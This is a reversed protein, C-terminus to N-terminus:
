RDGRPCKMKAKARLLEAKSESPIRQLCIMSGNPLLKPAEMCIMLRGERQTGSTPYLM